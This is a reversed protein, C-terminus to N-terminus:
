GKDLYTVLRALLINNEGVVGTAKVLLDKNEERIKDYDTKFEKRMTDQKKEYYRWVYVVAIMMAAALGIPGRDLLSTLWDAGAGHSPHAPVPSEVHQTALFALAQIAPNM